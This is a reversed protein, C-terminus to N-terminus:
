ERAAIRQRHVLGQMNAAERAFERLAESTEGEDLIMPRGADGGERISPDLPIEGLFPM